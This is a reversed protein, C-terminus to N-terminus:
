SATSADQSEHYPLNGASASKGVRRKESRINITVSTATGDASAVSFTDTYTTGAAFENHASGATYTWAGAADVAFTGYSGATGAQAVFSAASDVIRLPDTVRLRSPTPTDAYNLEGVIRAAPPPGPAPHAAPNISRSPPPRAAPTPSRSPTPTPRARRSSTTRPARRIPGPAPRTSRSPATAAPPAPRHWSARRATS